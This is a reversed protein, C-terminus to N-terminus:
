SFLVTFNVGQETNVMQYNMGHHDLITKVIYLGLGSGGTNRSRSKEVRYFPNFIQELDENVIHIGTNEVSLFNDSLKIIVTEKEPSYQVANGIINSFARYLLDKDGVCKVDKPLTINIAIEKDEAMGGSNRICKQILESINVEAKSVQFDSGGMKAAVLIEKVLKEMDNVTKLSHRLYTDRDKYDGVQYIMGELEGKIITIPTKLEHSVSTFFDIRQKEQKREKEIDMQLQENAQRLSDLANTLKGAMDNLSLALIGIEDNRSTDCQWTMDLNSMRKAVGCIKVLPKSFSRSCVYAGTIAILLIVVIILPLLKILVDYSQSVAVFTATANVKYEQNDYSFFATTSLAKASSPVEETGATNINFIENGVSDFIEISANNKISFDMISQSNNEVGNNELETILVQFSKSFQSELETQYNKPLFYLVLGYIIICCAVLLSLM